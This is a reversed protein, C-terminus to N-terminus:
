RPLGKDKIVGVARDDWLVEMMGDKINTCELEFGLHTICWVRLIQEMLVLDRPVSTTHSYPTMRATFLKVQYGAAVWSKVREVMEPIPPGLTYPDNRPIQEALTGDFDVGIWGRKRHEHPTPDICIPCIHTM